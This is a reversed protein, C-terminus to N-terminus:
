SSRAASASAPKVPILELERRLQLENYQGGVQLSAMGLVYEGAAYPAQNRGLSLRFPHPFDGGVDLAAVQERFTMQGTKTNVTRETATGSRIIIKGNM